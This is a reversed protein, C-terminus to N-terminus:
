SDDIFSITKGFETVKSLNYSLMLVYLVDHLKCKISKGQPLKMELVVIGHGTAELMHGDGLTVELSQKLDDLKSFLMKNNCM